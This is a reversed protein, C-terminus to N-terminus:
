SLAIPIEKAVDISRDLIFDMDDVSLDIGYVEKLAYLYDEIQNKMQNQVDQNSIWGVVKSEQIIRDIKLAAKTAVQKADPLSDKWRNLVDNVLGYIAKAVEHGQLEQPINDATRNIIANSLETVKSLYEADSIRKGRWAQIVDELITSFRRYFPADEDMKEIITKKARHAITEAKAPTSQLEDIEAQFSERDFINVLPRISLVDESTVYTKILKQVMAEYPNLDVEEAYRRKVSMRLRHFAALDRKYREILKAPTEDIFKVSSFAVSMTRSFAALRADFTDRLVEDALSRAFAEQDKRNRIQKFIEWLEAHRQSLGAAEESIGTLTGRLDDRDFEPLLCYPYGAESSEDHSGVYDIIYGFDKGPYLRNVRAIAQLLAHGNLRRALYLVKNRPASFGSLLKDVVIIIEPRDGYKFANILSRNYEKENGHKEMMQKWFTQIEEEGARDDDEDGERTGPGSILLESSLKGFEDLYKKFKLASLKSGASLQAKFPKEINKSFHESLDWAMSYIMQDQRGSVTKRSIEIRRREYLLPVVTNDNVARDIPYADIVGGLQAATNKDKKKLPAGTFGIYCANPLPKQMRLSAEGYRSGHGEDVLVFINNSLNQYNQSKIATEFKDIVTTIVTEKDRSLMELLHKGTKTRVPEKGCSHFAGRVQDDFDDRDSVLVIRPDTIGPEIAIAKAMMIMTLSRGSGHAHWIVGGTRKGEVGV